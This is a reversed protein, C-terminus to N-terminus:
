VAGLGCLWVAVAEFTVANNFATDLGGVQVFGASIVKRWLVTRVVEKVNADNPPM